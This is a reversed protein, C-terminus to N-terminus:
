NKASTQERSKLRKYMRKKSKSFALVLFVIAAIGYFFAALGLTITGFLSVVSAMGGGGLTSFFWAGLGFLIALSGQTIAKKYLSKKKDTIIQIAEEDDKYLDLLEAKDMKKFEKWAPLSDQQPLSLSHVTNSFSFVILLIIITIKM